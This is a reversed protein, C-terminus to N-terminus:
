NASHLRVCRQVQKELEGIRKGWEQQADTVVTIYEEKNLYGNRTPGFVICLNAIVFFIFFFNALGAQTSSAKHCTWESCRHDM